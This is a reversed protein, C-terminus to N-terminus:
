KNMEAHTRAILKVAHIQEKLLDGMAEHIIRHRALPMKGQFKDSIVTAQLHNDDGVLDDIEVIDNSDFYDQLCKLLIEQNSLTKEKNTKCMNDM